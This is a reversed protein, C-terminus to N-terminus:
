PSEYGASILLSGGSLSDPGTAFVQDSSIDFTLRPEKSERAQQGGLDSQLIGLIGIFLTAAVAASAWTLHSRKWFSLREASPQSFVYDALRNEFGPRPECDPLRHLLQKVGRLEVEERGCEECERLHARLELMDSGGLEGDLYASLKSQAARCNM